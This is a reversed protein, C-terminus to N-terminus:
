VGERKLNRRGRRSSQNKSENRAFNKSSKSPESQHNFGFSLSSDRVCPRLIEVQVAKDSTEKAIVKKLFSDYLGHLSSFM